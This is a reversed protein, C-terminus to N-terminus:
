PRVVSGGEAECAAAAESAPADYAWTVVESGEARQRCGVTNAPRPCSGGAMVRSGLAECKGAFEARREADAFSYDGCMRGERDICTLTTAPTAPLIGAAPGTPARAPPAAARDQQRWQLVIRLAREAEPTGFNDLAFRLLRDQSRSALAEELGRRRADDASAPVPSAAPAPRSATEPPAAMGEAVAAAIDLGHNFADAQISEMDGDNWCNLDEHRREIRSLVRSGASLTCRTVVDACFDESAPAATCALTRDSRGATAADAIRWGKGHVAFYAAVGDRFAQATGPGDPGVQVALVGTGGIATSPAPLTAADQREIPMCASLLLVLAATPPLITLRPM